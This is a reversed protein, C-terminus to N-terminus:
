RPADKRAGAVARPLDRVIGRIGAAAGGLLGGGLYSVTRGALTLPYFVFLGAGNFFFASVSGLGETNEGAGSDRLDDWVAWPIQLIWGPGEGIATWGHIWAGHAHLQPHPWPAEYPDPDSEEVVVWCRRREHDHACGAALVALVAACLLRSKAVGSRIMAEM